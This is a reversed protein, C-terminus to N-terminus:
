KPHVTRILDLLASAKELTISALRHAANNLRKSKQKPRHYFKEIDKKMYWWLLDNSSSLYRYGNRTIPLDPYLVFWRTLTKTSVGMFAAIASKGSLIINLSQILMANTVGHEDFSVHRSYCNQIGLKVVEDANNLFRIKM